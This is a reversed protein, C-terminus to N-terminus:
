TQVNEMLDTIEKLRVPKQLVTCGLKFTKESEIATVDGTMIFINKLDTKCGRETLAEIAQFANVGPMFYGVSMVDVCPQEKHCLLGMDGKCKPLSSFTDVTNKTM